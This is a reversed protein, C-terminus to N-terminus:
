IFSDVTFITRREEEIELPHIRFFKIKFMYVYFVNLEVYCRVCKLVVLGLCHQSSVCARSGASFSSFVFAAYFWFYSRRFFNNTFYNEALWCRDRTCSAWCFYKQTKMRDTRVRQIGTICMPGALEYHLNFVM